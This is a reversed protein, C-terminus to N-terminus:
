LRKRLFEVIMYGILASAVGIAFNTPTFIDVLASVASKGVGRSRTFEGMFLNSYFLFTIFGTEIVARWVPALTARKGRPEAM